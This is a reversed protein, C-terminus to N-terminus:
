ATPNLTYLPKALYIRVAERIISTKAEFWSIGKHYCHIELRLFARLALGIHNRQARAARVQAREVNCFQKIGRHYNEITWAYNAYKIRTLESMELDNTAWYEIDDETIVIKFVRILGYGPLHVIRGAESIEVKSIAAVGQRDPNVLRNEKLRTLWIWQFARIKKLNPLSAYWSDFAICRPQFGRKHAKELVQQFHDNKTLGDKAKDYLRYDCPVHRDGDTWLLTMLNIGQVVRHHKGSWHRTVLEIRRAFPKDLTSDDFVLIGACLDVQTQAEQWMTEADPELRHLLRTFADHAPPEEQKPQVRAAETASCTKPTAILFNIYDEENCKPPNM